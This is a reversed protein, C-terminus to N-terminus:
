GGFSWAEATLLADVGFPVVAGSTIGSQMVVSERNEYWTGVMMKIAAKITAPVYTADAGYGATFRITAAAPQIRPWPWLKYPYPILRGPEGATFLYNGPDVTQSNGDWDVYTLSSVSTATAIPLRIEYDVRTFNYDPHTLRFWPFADIKLDWTQNVFARRLQSEAVRRAAVILGNILDDDDSIDVRLHNKAETLTIPEVSPGSVLTLQTHLQM